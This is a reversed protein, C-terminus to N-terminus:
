WVGRAAEVQRGESEVGVLGAHRPGRVSRQGDVAAEGLGFDLGLSDLAHDAVEEGDEEVGVVAGQELALRTADSFDVDIGSEVHGAFREKQAVADTLDRVLVINGQAWELALPIYDLFSRLLIIILASSICDKRENFSLSYKKTLRDM